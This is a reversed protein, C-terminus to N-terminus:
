PTPPFLPRGSGGGAETFAPYLLEGVEEDADNAEEVEHFIAMAEAKSM